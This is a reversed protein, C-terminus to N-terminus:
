YLESFLCRGRVFVPVALSWPYSHSSAILWLREVDLPPRFAETYSVRIQVM